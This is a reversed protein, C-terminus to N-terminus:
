LRQVTHPVDGSRQLGRDPERAGAGFDSDVQAVDLKEIVVHCDRM